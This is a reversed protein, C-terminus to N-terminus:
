VYPNGALGVIVGLVLAVLDALLNRVLHLLPVVEPVREARLLALEVLVESLLAPDALLLRLLLPVCPLRLVVLDLAQALSVLKILLGVDLLDREDLLGDQEALAERRVTTAWITVSAPLARIFM